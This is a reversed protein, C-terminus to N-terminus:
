LAKPSIKTMHPRDFHRALNFLSQDVPVKPRDGVTSQGNNQGRIICDMTFLCDENGALRLILGKKGPLPPPKHAFTSFEILQRNFTFMFVSEGPSKSKLRRSRTAVNEARPPSRESVIRCVHSINNVM